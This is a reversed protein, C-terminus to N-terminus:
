LIVFVRASKTDCQQPRWGAQRTPKEDVYMLRYASSRQHHGFSQIRLRPRIMRPRLVLSSTAPLRRTSRGLLQIYLVDTLTQHVNMISNCQRVDLHRRTGFLSYNCTTPGNVRYRAQFPSQSADQSLWHDCSQMRYRFDPYM